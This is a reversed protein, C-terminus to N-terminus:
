QLSSARSSFSRWCSAKKAGMTKRMGIERSRGLFQATGLNTYNICAIILVLFSLLRVANVAPFGYTDWLSLNAQQLPEILFGSINAKTYESVLRDFVSDLQTQLWNQDLGEPLMVYTNNRDSLANWEGIEDIDGM